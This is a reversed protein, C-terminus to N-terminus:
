QASPRWVLRQREGLLVQGVLAVPERHAAVLWQDRQREREGVRVGATGGFRARGEVAHAMLQDAALVLFARRLDKPGIDLRPDGQDGVLGRPGRLDREGRQVFEVVDRDVRRGVQHLEVRDGGGRALQDAVIAARQQVLPAPGDDAFAQRTQRRVDRAERVRDAVFEVGRAGLAVADDRQVPLEFALVLAQRRQVVREGGLDGLVMPQVVLQLFLVVAIREGTQVVPTEQVLASRSQELRTQDVRHRQAEHHEVEVVELAQVVQVAVDDAIAHQDREPLSSRSPSRSFSTM